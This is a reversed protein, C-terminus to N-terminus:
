AVERNWQSFDNCAVRRATKGEVDSHATATHSIQECRKDHPSNLRGALQGVVRLEPWDPAPGKGHDIMVSCGALLAPACIPVLPSQSQSV